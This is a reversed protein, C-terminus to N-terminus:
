INIKQTTIVGDININVVYVGKKLGSADINVLQSGKSIKYESSYVSNGFIDYIAILARDSDSDQINIIVQKGNSVVNVNYNEKEILSISKISNTINAEESILLKKAYESVNSYLSPVPQNNKANYPPTINDIFDAKGVFTLDKLLNLAFIDGCAFKEIILPWLAKGYKACYNVLKNYEDTEAYKYPNSHIAIEPDRWTKVWYNYMVDFDSITKNPINNKLAEIKFLDSQSFYSENIDASFPASKVSGNIPRYYYVISGYEATGAGTSNLADRIHMVREWAGLKSEWEFGHPRVITTNSRVSAHTFIGNLAWLAIAANSATAGSRTYGYSQYYNDWLTLNTRSPFDWTTTKGVSWSICNYVGNYPGSIFSNDLALVPFSNRLSSYTTELGLYLDCTFTPTNSSYASILGASINSLSSKIRSTLGWSYGDSTTGYDDNYARIKGPISSNDELFLWTDGGSKCTFFNTSYSGSIALGTGAVVCNAYSNNNVTLNVLGSQYQRYTRLRLIYSGSIPITVNLSGNGSSYSTWSYSAPNSTSFFEIVHEFGSGATKISVTQGATFSYNLRTTYYVPVNLQYTYTEGATGKSTIITSDGRNASKQLANTKIGEVFQKYQIDSIGAKLANLSLKIFEVNPIEPGKGIVSVRNQGKRLKVTAVSKKKDTLSISQWNATQPKFTSESVLGNIAIKFEPYGEKTVPAMIWTDLYYTGEELSEIEFTKWIEEGVVKVDASKIVVDGGLAPNREFYTKEMDQALVSSCVFLSLILCFTKM